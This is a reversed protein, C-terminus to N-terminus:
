SRSAAPYLIEAGFSGLCLGSRSASAQCKSVLNRAAQPADGCRDALLRTVRLPSAALPVAAERRCSANFLTDEPFRWARDPACRHGATRPRESVRAQAGTRGECGVTVRATFTASCAPAM